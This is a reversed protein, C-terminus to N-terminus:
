ARSFLYRSVDVRVLRGEAFFLRYRVRGAFAEHRSILLSGDQAIFQGVKDLPVDKLEEFPKGQSVPYVVFDGEARASILSRSQDEGVSFLGVNGRDFSYKWSFPGSQFSLISLIKRNDRALPGGFATVVASSLAVVLIASLIIQLIRRGNFM